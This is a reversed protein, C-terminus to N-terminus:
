PAGFGPLEAAEALVFKRQKKGIRLGLLPLFLPLIVGAAM